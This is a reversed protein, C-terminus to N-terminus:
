SYSVELAAYKCVVYDSTGGGSRSLRFGLLKRSNPLQGAVSPSGSATVIIPSSVCDAPTLSTSTLTVITFGDSKNFLELSVTQGGIAVNLVAALVISRRIENDGPDYASPDFAFCGLEDPGTSVTQQLGAIGAHVERPLKRIFSDFLGM